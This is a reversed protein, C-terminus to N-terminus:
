LERNPDTYIKRLLDPLAPIESRPNILRGVDFRTLRLFFQPTRTFISKASNSIFNNTIEVVLLLQSPSGYRM